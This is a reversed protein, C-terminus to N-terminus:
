SCVMAPTRRATGHPMALKLRKFGSNPMSSQNFLWVLLDAIVSPEATREM